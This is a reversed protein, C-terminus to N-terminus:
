EGFRNSSCKPLMAQRNVRQVVDIARFGGLLDLINVPECQRTLAAPYDQVLVALDSAPGDFKERNLLM